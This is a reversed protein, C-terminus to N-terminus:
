HGGGQAHVELAHVGAGRLATKDNLIVTVPISELLKQMRGKNLFAEMFLPKKLFDLIKPAIGGGVYIGGRALQHLALNGAEAGYLKVFLELSKVCAADSGELAHETIVAARDDDEMEERIHTSAKEGKTLFFEYICVLGNGSLIREYSVREYKSQMFVLLEMELPTQPAFEVHGSETAFPIHCTGNWFLAAEGLGTGAAIVAANGKGAQKTKSLTLLDCRKLTRIGWATAELDNILHVTEIGCEKELDRARIHWPLNPTICEDNYVPGAIGFSARSVAAPCDRLFDKLIPALGPYDASSYKKEFASKKLGERSEFYALNVKTGGIDGSLYM